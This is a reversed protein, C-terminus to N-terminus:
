FVTGVIWGLFPCPLTPELLFNVPGLNCNCGLCVGGGITGQINSSGITTGGVDIDQLIDVYINATHLSGM